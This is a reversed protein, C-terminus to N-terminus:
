DGNHKNNEGFNFNISGDSKLTTESKNVYLGQAKAVMDFAKLASDRNGSTLSDQILNQLQELFMKRQEEPDLTNRKCFDKVANRIYEEATKIHIGWRAVLEQATRRKSLCNETLYSIIVSNRLEIEEETWNIQNNIHCGGKRSFAALRAKIIEDIKDPDYPDIKEKEKKKSM